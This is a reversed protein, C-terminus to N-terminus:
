STFQQQLFDYVPALDPKKTSIKCVDIPCPSHEILKFKEGDIGLYSDAQDQGELTAGRSTRMREIEREIEDVIFQESRATKLDAKNCALLIPTRLANIDPSTLLEYMQEAGM